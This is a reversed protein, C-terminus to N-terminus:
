LFLFIVNLNWGMELRLYVFICHTPDSFIIEPDLDSKSSFEPDPDSKVPIEPDSGPSPALDLKKVLHYSFNTQFWKYIKFMPVAVSNIDIKKFYKYKVSWFIDYKRGLM